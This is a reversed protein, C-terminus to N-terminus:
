HEGTTTPHNPTDAPKSKNAFFDQQQHYYGIAFLGQEQLSLHVPFTEIGSFIEGFLKEYWTALAGDLKALHHNKLRLLIPFVSSPSSSAAGYYRDRITANIGPQAASQVRELASFLRGLRYGPDTNSRDLTVDIEKASLHQARILRNLCAKILAARVYPISQEARCRRVATQLLAAPYPLGALIARMTDGALDPPVNESRNQLATSNLLRFLSLYGSEFAPKNIEIDTFHRAINLAFESVPGEQWFRVAIRAANPALGLVYFRADKDPPLYVGTRTADLLNRVAQVGRDPNDANAPGFLAAFSDVFTSERSAWFVTSADGVRICQPSGKSLLHNLVTTYNFAARQGIQANAGQEKGYSAFAPLNFSVINAGSTQAGWVGKISPHLRQVRDDKGTISCFSKSGSGDEDDSTQLAEVVAPRMCVLTDPNDSNLRFTINPNTTQIEQWCAEQELRRMDPSSLFALVATIGADNLGGLRNEILTAFASHMEELRERYRSEKGKKKSDELKKPDPVGLVYETNGWLLSAAVNVSKKAAQPVLFSRAQKKKGEGSRTDDIQRVGGSDDLVIVFPIEKREFGEPALEGSSQKREYYENLAQLIM